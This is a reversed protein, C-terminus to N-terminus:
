EKFFGTASSDSIMQNRTRRTIAKYMNIDEETLTCEKETECGPPFLSNKQIFMETLRTVEIQLANAYFEYDLEIEIAEAATCETALERQRTAAHGYTKCGKGMVKFICQALLKKFHPGKRYRFWRLKREEEEDLSEPTIEYKACLRDLLFQANEKEGGIGREALAKLKKMRSLHEAQPEASNTM